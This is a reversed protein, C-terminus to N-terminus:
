DRVKTNQQVVKVFQASFPSLSYNRLSAIGPMAFHSLQQNHNHNHQNHQNHDDFCIDSPDLALIQRVQAGLNRLLGYGAGGVIMAGYSHGVLRFNDLNTSYNGSNDSIAILTSIFIRLEQSVARANNAIKNFCFSMSRSSWDVIIMNTKGKMKKNILRMLREMWCGAYYHDIGGHVLIFTKRKPDYNARMLADRYESKQSDFHLEAKLQNNDFLLFTARNHQTVYDPFAPEVCAGGVRAFKM